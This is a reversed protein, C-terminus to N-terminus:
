VRATLLVAATALSKIEAHKLQSVRGLQHKCVQYVMDHYSCDDAMVSLITEFDGRNYAGYYKLVVDRAEITSKSETQSRLWIKNHALYLNTKSRDLQALVLVM